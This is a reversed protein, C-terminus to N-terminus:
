KTEHLCAGCENPRAAQRAKIERLSHTGDCSSCKVQDAYIKMQSASLTRCVWFGFVTFLAPLWWLITNEGIMDRFFLALFAYLGAGALVILSIDFRLLKRRKRKLEEETYVPVFEGTSGCDSANLVEATDEEPPKKMPDSTRRPNDAVGLEFGERPM